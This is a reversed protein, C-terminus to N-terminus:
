KHIFRKFVGIRKKCLPCDNLKWKRNMYNVYGTSYLLIHGCTVSTMIPEDTQCVVCM